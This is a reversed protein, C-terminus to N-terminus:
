GLARIEVELTPWHTRLLAALAQMGWEESRRHGVAVVAMGTQNVADQAPKRYQGTVYLQVGQDAAEQILKDTMAGVVAVRSIMTQHGAEARDYGRFQQSIEKLWADFEHTDAEFLMGVARQPLANGTDTTAQKFGLPVLPSTAGLAQALSPNYGMTLTEDFPLHNTLIGLAPLVSPDLQWPRHLWIADLNNMLAWNELGPWPELALGLRQVPKNTPRFVGGAESAPYRNVAFQQHLFQAIDDIFVPESNM